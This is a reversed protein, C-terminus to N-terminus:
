TSCHRGGTRSFPLYGLEDLVVSGAHLLRAALQGAKGQQKEQELTNVLEVTSFLRVRRRYQEIAQIDIDTKILM